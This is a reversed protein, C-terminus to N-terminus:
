NSSISNNTEDKIMTSPDNEGFDITQNNSVSNIDTTNIADSAETTDSVEHAHETQPVDM